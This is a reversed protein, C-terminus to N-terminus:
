EQCSGPRIEASNLYNAVATITAGYRKRLGDAGPREIGLRERLREWEIRARESHLRAAALSVIAALALRRNAEPMKAIWDSAEQMRAIDGRSPRLRPEEVEAEFGLRCLEADRYFSRWISSIRGDLGYRADPDPMRRWLQAAEVLRDEVMDFTWLGELDVREIM